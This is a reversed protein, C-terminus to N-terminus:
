LVMHVDEQSSFLRYLTDLQEKSTATFIATISIYKGNKSEKVSLDISKNDEIHKHLAEMVLEEIGKNPNCLIKIPFRCPFELLTEATQDKGNSQAKDKEESTNPKKKEAM